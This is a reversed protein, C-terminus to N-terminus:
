LTEEGSVNNLDDCWNFKILFVSHKHIECLKRLIWVDIQDPVNGNSYIGLFELNSKYFKGETVIKGDATYYIQFSEKIEIFSETKQGFLIGQVKLYALFFTKTIIKSNFAKQSHM